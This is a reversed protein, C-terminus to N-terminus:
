GRIIIDEVPVYGTKGYSVAWIMWRGDYARIPQGRLLAQEVHEIGDEVYRLSFRNGQLRPLPQLPAEAVMALETVLKGLDTMDFFRPKGDHDVWKRGCRVRYTGAPGGSAAGDALEFRTRKTGIRVSISGLFKRKDESM